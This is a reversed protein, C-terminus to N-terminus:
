RGSADASPANRAQDASRQVRPRGDVRVVVGLLGAGDQHIEAPHQLDGACLLHWVADVEQDSTVHIRITM